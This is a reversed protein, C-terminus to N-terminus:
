LRQGNCGRAAQIVLVRAPFHQIDTFIAGTFRLTTIYDGPHLDHLGLKVEAQGGRPIARLTPSANNPLRTFDDAPQGNVTFHVNRGLDFGSDPAAVQELRVSLGELPITGTKERVTVSSQMQPDDTSPRWWSRRITQTVSTRDLVLTGQPAPPQAFAIARVFPATGAIAVILRGVYKSGPQLPPVFLCVRLV